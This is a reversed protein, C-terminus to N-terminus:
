MVFGHSHGHGVTQALVKQAAKLTVTLAPTWVETLADDDKSAMGGAVPASCRRLGAMLVILAAVLARAATRPLSRAVMLTPKQLTGRKCETVVFNSM